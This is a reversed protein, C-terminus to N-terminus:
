KTTGNSESDQSSLFTSFIEEAVKAIPLRRFKAVEKLHEYTEQRLSVRSKFYRVTESNFNQAYEALADKGMRYCFNGFREGRRKELRYYAFLPELTAELESENVKDKYVFALRTQNPCGGIWVQYSNPGQGVLGLEATYPRACGNPCGTMRIILPVKSLGCHHFLTEIRKVINPMVRESETVALPCLPFAPCAMSDRFIVSIDEVLPVGHEKLINTIQEKTSPEIEKVLLNQEPTVNLRVEPFTDVLVRLATKLRMSADNKIRGNLIPVGLFLKGNGQEFWGLYDEHKWLVLPRWPEIREGFYSEVLERFADIGMNHVLYKMRSLMRSERNGYDRQVAVIAKILEYIKERRVFGLHDALRPFTQEKNHTRGLGGGVTINYGIIENGESVVVIGVDHIYIDISNDGPVTIGIKFKRPLYTEGYIPEVPDGTVIGRGNDFSRLQSVQKMDMNRKWFEIEGAKEGDLWIEAYSSTQPALIEALVYALRRVEIYDPTLFPAPTTVINRNVDGCGGLTSGGAEIISQFVTKLDKKLVGHIQFSSRTTARLTDNGFETSINDLVRYLSTPMDGSPLKLRLMFQYKKQEGKKRQERNDQQYSGHFKILQVSEESVYINDDELDQQLPFKLHSSDKKYKEVKSLKKPTETTSAVVPVLTKPSDQKSVRKHIWGRKTRSNRYGLSHFFGSSGLSYTLFTLTIRSSGGNTM